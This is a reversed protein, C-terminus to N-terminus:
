LKIFLILIKPSINIIFFNDILYLSNTDKELILHSNNSGMKRSPERKDAM